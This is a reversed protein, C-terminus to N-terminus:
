QYQAVLLVLINQLSESRVCMMMRIMLTHYDLRCDLTYSYLERVSSMVQQMLDAVLHSHNM